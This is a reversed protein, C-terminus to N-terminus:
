DRLRTCWECGGVACMLQLDCIAIGAPFFPGAPLFFAGHAFPHGDSGGDNKTANLSGM